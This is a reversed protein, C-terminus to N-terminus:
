PASTRAQQMPIPGDKSLAIYVWSRKGGQVVVGRRFSHEGQIVTVYARGPPVDRFEYTGMPGTTTHVAAPLDTARLEVDVGSLPWGAADRVVGVVMGRDAPLAPDPGLLSRRAGLDARSDAALPLRALFSPPFTADSPKAPRAGGGCGLAGVVMAM